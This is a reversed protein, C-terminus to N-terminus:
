YPLYKGNPYNNDSFKGLPFYNGLHSYHSLSSIDWEECLENEENVEIIPTTRLNNVKTERMKVNEEYSNEKNIEKLSIDWEECMDSREENKEEHTIDIINSVKIEFKEDKDSVEVIERIYM